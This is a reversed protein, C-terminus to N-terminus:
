KEWMCTAQSCCHHSLKVELNQILLILIGFYTEGASNLLLLFTYNNIQTFHWLIYVLNLTSMIHDM